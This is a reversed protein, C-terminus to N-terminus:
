ARACGASRPSPGPACGRGYRSACARLINLLPCAHFFGSLTVARPAEQPNEAQDAAYLVRRRWPKRSPHIPDDHRDARARLIRHANRRELRDDRRLLPVRHFGEDHLCVTTGSVPIRWIIEKVLTRSISYDMDTKRDVARERASSFGTWPRAKPTQKLCRM